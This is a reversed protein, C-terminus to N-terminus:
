APRAVALPAGPRPPRDVAPASREGVVGAVLAGHEGQWGLVWGGESTRDLAHEGVRREALREARGRAGVDLRPQRRPVLGLAESRDKASGSPSAARPWIASAVTSRTAYSGCRTSRGAPRIRWAGASTASAPFSRVPM